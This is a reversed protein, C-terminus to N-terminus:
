VMVTGVFYGRGTGTITQVGEWQDLVMATRADVIFHIESPDRQINSAIGEIVVEYSLRASKGRAFVMLESTKVSPNQGKFAKLAVGIAKQPAIPTEIDLDIDSDFAKDIGAFEGEATSHVVLDGGLVRLGKYRRDYRVHESGKKDLIVDSVDFIHDSNYSIKHKGVRLHEKARAVAENRRSAFIEPSVLNLYGNDKSTEDSSISPNQNGLNETEASYERCSGFLLSLFGFSALSYFQKM